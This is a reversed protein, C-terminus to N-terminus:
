GVPGARQEINRSRGKLWEYGPLHGIALKIQVPLWSQHTIQLTQGDEM